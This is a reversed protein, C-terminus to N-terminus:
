SPEDVLGRDADDGTLDTGALGEGGARADGAEVCGPEGDDVQGVGHDPGAPDVLVEHDREARDGLEV